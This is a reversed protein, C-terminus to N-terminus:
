LTNTKTTNQRYLISYLMEDQLYLVRELFSRYFSLFSSFLLFSIFLFSSLFSSIFSPLFSPFFSTLYFFTLTLIWIQKHLWCIAQTYPLWPIRKGTRMLWYHFIKCIEFVSIVIKIFKIITHLRCKFNAQKNRVGSYYTTCGIVHLSRIIHSQWRLILMHIFECKYKEFYALFQSTRAVYNNKKNPSFNEGWQKTAQIWWEKM